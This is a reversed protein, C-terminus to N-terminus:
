CLNTVWHFVFGPTACPTGLSMFHFIARFCARSEVHINSFLNWRKNKEPTLEPHSHDKTMIWNNRKYEQSGIELWEYACAWLLYLMNRRSHLCSSTWLCTTNNYDRLYGTVISVTNTSAKNQPSGRTRLTNNYAQIIAIINQSFRQLQKQCHPTCCSFFAGWWDSAM